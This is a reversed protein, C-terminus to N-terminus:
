VLWTVGEFRHHMKVDALLKDCLLEILATM